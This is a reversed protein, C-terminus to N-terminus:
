NLGPDDAGILAGFQRASTATVPTGARAAPGADTVETAQDVREGEPDNAVPGDNTQAPVAEALRNLLAIPSRAYRAVDLSPPLGPVTQRVEREIEARVECLRRWGRAFERAVRPIRQPGVVVLAVVLIVLLKTPSLDLM